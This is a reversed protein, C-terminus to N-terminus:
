VVSSKPLEHANPTVAAASRASALPAPLFRLSLVRPAPARHPEAAGRRPLPGPARASTRPRPRQRPPLRHSRRRRLTISQRPTTGAGRPRRSTHAGALRHVLRFRAIRAILLPPQERSRLRWRARPPRARPWQRRRPTRRWTHPGTMARQESGTLACASRLRRWRLWRPPRSLSCPGVFRGVVRAACVPCGPRACTGSAPSPGWWAWPRARGTAVSQRRRRSRMTCHPPTRAGSLTLRRPRLTQPTSRRPAHERGPDSPSSSRPLVSGTGLFVYSTRRM